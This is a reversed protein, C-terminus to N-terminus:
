FGQGKVEGILRLVHRVYSCECEALCPRMNNQHLCLGVCDASGFLSKSYVPGQYLDAFGDVRVSLTNGCHHNFLFLGKSIDVFNPQYGLLRVENDYVFADRTRWSIGCNKCTKFLELSPQVSSSNARSLVM